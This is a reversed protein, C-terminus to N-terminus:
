EKFEELIIPYDKMLQEMKSEEKMLKYIKYLFVVFAKNSHISGGKTIMRKKLYKSLFECGKERQSKNKSILNFYFWITKLVKIRAKRQKYLTDELLERAADLNNNKMFLKFEDLYSSQLLDDRKYKSSLKRKMFSTLSVAEKEKGLKELIYIQKQYIDVIFDAYKTFTKEKQDLLKLLETYEEKGELYEEEIEWPDSKLPALKRAYRAYELAGNINETKYFLINAINIYDKAEKYKSLRFKKDYQYEVLHDTIKENTQSSYSFGTTFKSQQYRGADLEWKNNRKMYAFWYHFGDSGAGSLGLAPIGYARATIVCFYGQDVCIGGKEKIKALTYDGDSSLWVYQQQKLRKDNYKIQSYLNKWSNGNCKVNQLTWTLESVPVPTDVVLTLDRISLDKYKIKSKRKEFIYKYHNYRNELDIEFDLMKQGIQNHIKPRPQDWVLSIALQLKMFQQSSDIEYLKNLINFVEIVNDKKDINDIIAFHFNNDFLYNIFQKKIPIKNEVILELFLISKAVYIQQELIKTKVPFRLKEELSNDLIEYLEDIMPNISNETIATKIRSKLKDNANLNLFYFSVLLVFINKILSKM